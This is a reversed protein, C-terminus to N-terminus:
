FNKGNASSNRLTSTQILQAGIPLNFSSVQNLLKATGPCNRCKNTAAAFHFLKERRGNFEKGDRGVM